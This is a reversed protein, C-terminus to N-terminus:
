PLSRIIKLTIPLLQKWRTMLRTQRNEGREKDQDRNLISYATTRNIGLIKALQQFDERNFSERLRTKDIVPIKNYNRRPAMINWNYQWSFNLTKLHQLFFERTSISNETNFNFNRFAAQQFWFEAINFNFNRKIFEISLLYLFMAFILNEDNGHGM